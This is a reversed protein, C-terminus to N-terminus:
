GGGGDERDELALPLTLAASSTGSFVTSTAVARLVAGVGRPGSPRAVALHAVPGRGRATPGDPLYVWGDSASADLEWTSAQALRGELDLLYARARTGAVLREPDVLELELAAPAGGAAGLNRHWSAVLVRGDTLTVWAEFHARGVGSAQWGGLRAPLGSAELRAPSIRGPPVSWARVVVEAPPVPLPAARGDLATLAVTLPTSAATSTPVPGPGLVEGRSEVALELAQPADLGPAPARRALALRAVTDVGKAVWLGEGGALAWGEDDVRMAWRGSALVSVVRGGRVPVGLARPSSGGPGELVLPLEGGQDPGVLRVTLGGGPRADLAVAAPRSGLPVTRVTRAVYVPMTAGLAAPAPQTSRAVATIELPREAPVGLEVRRNPASVTASAVVSARGVEQVFVSITAVDEPLEGVAFVARGHAPAEGCAAVGVLGVLALSRAACIM